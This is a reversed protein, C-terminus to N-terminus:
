AMPETMGGLYNRNQVMEALVDAINGGDQVCRDRGSKKLWAEPDGPFEIGCLLVDTTNLGTREVDVHPGRPLRVALKM